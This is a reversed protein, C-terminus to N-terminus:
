HVPGDGVQVPTGPLDVPPIAPPPPPLVTMDKAVVANLLKVSFERPAGGTDGTGFYKYDTFLRSVEGNRQIRRPWDIPTYKIAPNAAAAPPSKSYDERINSTYDGPNFASIVGRGDPGEWFGVNFPVGVPTQEPSSPGGVQAASGWYLKQTSFGKLGMHALISPLSAPFGFCDPIM